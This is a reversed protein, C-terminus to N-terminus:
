FLGGGGDQEYDTSRKIKKVKKGYNFNYTFEIAFINQINLHGYWEENMNEYRTLVKHYTFDKIFPNYMVSLKAKKSINKEIGLIFLLDRSMERQYQINPSNYYLVGFLNFEKPLMIINTMNTRFSVKDENNGSLGIIRNYVSGYFNVRWRKQLQIAGNLALGYEYKDLINDKSIITTNNELYSSESIGDHTYIYYVKPSLYNNKFNVSYSLETKNDIAPKLDPNGRIITVPDIFVDFPNLDSIGPRYVKKRYTLKINQEKKLKYSLSFQPLLFDYGIKDTNEGPIDFISNEYRVGAQWSLKSIKGSVNYYLTNRLENYEFNEIDTSDTLSKENNMWQYYLRYGMEHKFKDYAISYDTKLELKQRDNNVKEVWNKEGTKISTDITDYITYNFNATHGGTYEYYDTEVSLESKDEGFKRKFYLSYFMSQGGNESTKLNTRYDSLSNNNLTKEIFLFDDEKGNHNRFESYLNLSTKDNVFWDFGYNIMGNSWSNEGEGTKIFDYSSDDSKKEFYNKGEFQEYHLRYGVFTRFHQNGYEINGRPNILIKTPHPVDM